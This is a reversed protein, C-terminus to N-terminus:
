VPWSPREANGVIDSDCRSCHLRHDIENDRPNILVDVAEVFPPLSWRQRLVDFALQCDVRVRRLGIPLSRQGGHRLAGEVARLHECTVLLDPSELYDIQDDSYEVGRLLEHAYARRHPVAELQDIRVNWRALLEDSLGFGSEVLPIWRERRADGRLQAVRREVLRRRERAIAEYDVATAAVGGGFGGHRVIWVVLPGVLVAILVGIVVDANRDRLGWVEMTVYCAGGIAVLIGASAGFVVALSRARAM